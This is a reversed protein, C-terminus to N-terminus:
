SNRSFSFIHPSRATYFLRIINSLAHQLFKIINQHSRLTVICSGGALFPRTSVGVQLALAAAGKILLEDLIGVYVRHTAKLGPQTM